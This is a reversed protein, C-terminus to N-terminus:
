WLLRITIVFLSIVGLPLYIYSFIMLRDLVDMVIKRIVGVFQVLLVPILWLALARGLELALFSIKPQNTMNYQLHISIAAFAIFFFSAKYSFGEKLLVAPLITAIFVMVLMVLLTELLAFALMYAAIVLIEGMSHSLMFAPFNFFLARMSWTFILFAAMSLALLMENRAPLRRKILDATIKLMFITCFPFHTQCFPSIIGSAHNEGKPIITCIM